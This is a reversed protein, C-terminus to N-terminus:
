ERWRNGLFPKIVELLDIRRRGERTIRLDLHFIGGAEQRADDGLCKGEPLGGFATSWFVLLPGRDQRDSSFFLWDTRPGIQDRRENTFRQILSICFFRTSQGIWSTFLAHNDNGTKRSILISSGFQPASPDVSAQDHCVRRHSGPRGRAPM